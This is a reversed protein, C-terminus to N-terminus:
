HGLNLLGAGSAPFLSAIGPKAPSLHKEAAGMPNSDCRM